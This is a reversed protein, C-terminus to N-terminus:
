DQAIGTESLLQRKWATIQYGKERMCPKCLLPRVAQEDPFTAWVPEGCRYCTTSRYIGKSKAM